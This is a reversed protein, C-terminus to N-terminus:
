ANQSRFETTCTFKSVIRHNLIQPFIILITFIEFVMGGVCVSVNYIHSSCLHRPGMTQSIWEQDVAIAM